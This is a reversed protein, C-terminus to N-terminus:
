CGTTQLHWVIHFKPYWLLYQWGSQMTRKPHTYQFGEVLFYCMTIATFYGLNLFLEALFSGSKMFITSIHNLLMTLMAFYKIVDRNWIKKM